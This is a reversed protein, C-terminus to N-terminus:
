SIDFWLQNLYPNAPATASVTVLTLNQYKGTTSNYVISQLNIPNAIAVDTLEGLTYDKSSVNKSKFSVLKQLDPLDALDGYSFRGKIKAIIDEPTDPSGQKGAEGQKGDKGALGDKGDKGDKGPLGDKGNVGDRGDAGNIGDAGDKGAVGKEGQEGKISEGTEGKEGKDGRLMEFFSTAIDKKSKFSEAIASLAEAGKKTDEAAGTAIKNAKNAEVYSGALPAELGSVSDAVKNTAQVNLETARAIDEIAPTNPDPTLLPDM